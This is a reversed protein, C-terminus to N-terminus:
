KKKRSQIKIVTQVYNEFNNYDIIDFKNNLIETNIDLFNRLKSVVDNSKCMKYKKSPKEVKYSYMLKVM